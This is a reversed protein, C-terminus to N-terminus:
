GPMLCQTQACVNAFTCKGFSDLYFEISLYDVGAQERQQM